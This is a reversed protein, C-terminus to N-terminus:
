ELNSWVNVFFVGSTKETTMWQYKGFWLEDQFKHINHLYEGYDTAESGVFLDHHDLIEKFSLTGDVDEDAGAFLHEAEDKAIEENSPIMWELIEAKSLHGDKDKDLEDDFRDKEAVIWEKSQDRGRDGIYEQFDVFGDGNVDKQKLVQNVVIEHMSIDEEPHSFSLFEFRDLNGDSNKDAADFLIKDEQMMNYEDILDPDTKIKDEDDEDGFDFEEEKYEQWSVYGNKDVDSDLFREESEEKSLSAFSRIIWQKLEDKEIKGDSDRDMKKLLIELRKKAEEPPLQDFEEAEKSSGLIAEHDFNSDHKGDVNHKHDRPSFAGDSEREHTKHPVASSTMCILSCTLTLIVFLRGM